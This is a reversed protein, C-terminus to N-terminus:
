FGVRSRAAHAMNDNQTSLGADSLIKIFAKANDSPADHNKEGVLVGREPSRCAALIPGVVPINQDKFLDTFNSAYEWSDGIIGAFVILPQGFKLIEDKKSILIDKQKKDLTRPKDPFLSQFKKEYETLGDQLLAIQKAAQDPTAGQLRDKYAALQDNLFGIREDKVGIQESDRSV